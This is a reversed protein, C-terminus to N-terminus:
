VCAPCNLTVPQGVAAKLTSLADSATVTGNGDIDCLCADCTETGVAARLTFLADSATIVADRTANGATLAV